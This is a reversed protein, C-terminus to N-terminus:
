VYLNSIWPIMQTVVVRLFAVKWATLWVTGDEELYFHSIYNSTLGNQPHATIAYMKQRKEDWVNMGGATGMWIRGLHDEQLSYVNDLLIRHRPKSTSSFMRTTGSERDHHVVGHITALWVTQDSAILIDRVQNGIRPHDNFFYAEHFQYLPVSHDVISVGNSTILWLRNQRDEFIEWIVNSVITNDILPDHYYIDNSGTTRNYINLGFDTGLILLSDNPTYITKIVENSFSTNTSNYLSYDLSNVNFRVLGTETGVWLVSDQDGFSPVITCILNNQLLPKYDGKLDYSTIVGKRYRNLGDYTGIWIDGDPTQHFSRIMNHSLGSNATTIQHYSSTGKEFILIGESTGVWIHGADDKYITRIVRAKGTDLRKNEFSQVDMVNLGDWTGIWLQDGDLLLASMNNSSLSNPDAGSQFYLMKYGDHRCLGEQTGIWMFGYQDQVISNTMNSSLGDKVTLNFFFFPQVTSATM